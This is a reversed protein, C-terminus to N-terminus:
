RTADRLEATAAIALKPAREGPLLSFCEDFIQAARGAQRAALLTFPGLYWTVRWDGPLAREGEELAQIEKPGHGAVALPSGRAPKTSCHRSPPASAM